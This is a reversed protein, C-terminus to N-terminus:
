QVVYSIVYYHPSLALLEETAKDNKSLNVAGCFRQFDGVKDKWSSAYILLPIKEKLSWKTDLYARVYYFSRDSYKEVHIKRKFAMKYTKFHLTLTTDESKTFIKMQNIYATYYDKEGNESYHYTNDQNLITDANINKGGKFEDIILLFQYKKDFAGLDFKNITIGAVELAQVLDLNTMQDSKYRNYGDEKLIQLRMDSKFQQACLDSNILSVMLLVFLLKRM